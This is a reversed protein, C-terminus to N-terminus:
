MCLWYQDAIILGNMSFITGRSFYDDPDIASRVIVESKHIIKFFIQLPTTQITRIFTEKVM